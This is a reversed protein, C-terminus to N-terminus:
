AQLEGANREALIRAAEVRQEPSWDPAVYPADPETASDTLLAAIADRLHMRHEHYRHAMDDPVWACTCVFEDWHDIYIQHEDFVKSIAARDVPQPQLFTLLARGAEVHADTVSPWFAKAAEVGAEDVIKM